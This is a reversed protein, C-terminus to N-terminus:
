PRRGTEQLSAAIEGKKMIPCDHNVHGGVPCETLAGLDGIENQSACLAEQVRQYGPNDSQRLTKVCASCLLAGVEGVLAGDRPFNHLIDPDARSADPTSGDEFTLAFIVDLARATHEFGKALALTRVQYVSIQEDTLQVM